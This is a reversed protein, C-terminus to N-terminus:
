LSLDIHHGKFPHGSDRQKLSASTGSEATQDPRHGKGRGSSGGKHEKRNDRIKSKDSEDLKATRQRNTEETKLGAQALNAQDVVPKQQLERQLQGADTNKHVAFSLDISKFSM